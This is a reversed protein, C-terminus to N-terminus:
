NFYKEMISFVEDKSIIDQEEYSLEINPALGHCSDGIEAKIDEFVKKLPIGMGILACDPDLNAYLMAKQYARYKEPSVDVILKM